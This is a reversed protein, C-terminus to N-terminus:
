EPWVQLAARVKAWRQSAILHRITEVSTTPVTTM